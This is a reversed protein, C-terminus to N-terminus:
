ACVASSPLVSDLDPFQSVAASVRGMWDGQVQQFAFGEVTEVNGVDIDVLGTVRWSKM